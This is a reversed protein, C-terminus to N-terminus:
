QLVLIHKYLFHNEVNLKNLRTAKAHSSMFRFNPGEPFFYSRPHPEFTLVGWPLGQKLALNGATQIVAQHGRHVGDFNGIAISGGKHNKLIDQVNRYIKM